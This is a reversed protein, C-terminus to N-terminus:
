FFLLSSQSHMFSNSCTMLRQQCLLPGRSVGTESIDPPTPPHTHTYNQVPWIFRGDEHLLLCHIHTTPPKCREKQEMNVGKKFAPGVPQRHQASIRQHEDIDSRSSTVRCLAFSPPMILPSFPPILVCCLIDLVVVPCLHRSSRCHSTWQRGSKGIM